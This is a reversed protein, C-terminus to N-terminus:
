ADRSWIRISWYRSCLLWGWRLSGWTWSRGIGLCTSYAFIEGDSIVTLSNNSFLLLSQFIIMLMREFNDITPWSVLSLPWPNSGKELISSLKTSAGENGLLVNQSSGMTNGLLDYHRCM